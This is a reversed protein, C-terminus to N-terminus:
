KVRGLLEAKKTDFEAQSIAGMTMLKHLKEILAFPDEAPAAAAPTTAAGLGQTMAGGMAVAAAMGAGLGAIGGDQGAAKEIAEATQFKTYKDLDGIARMSSGKDLHAQVEEPLSLSEVFFTLCSLGWEAFAKDVEAKIRDSMGQQNAALDLFAIGSGGLATAMATIIASRLQPELMASSVDSTTGLVRGIFPQLEDIKFSYTGFARIRVPGLDADRVTVPQSTGWKLGAQERLSFFVVDSKFPSKFAKDWNQLNTLIPLNETDLTHLGAGFLDALKGQDVFAAIQGDRVTLQAGNQIERDAFPVRWALQGPEELWEIVDVFQKKLFDLM